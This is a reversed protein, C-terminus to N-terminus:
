EPAVITQVTVTRSRTVSTDTRISGTWTISVTVLREKLSPSTPGTTAVTVTGQVNTLRFKSDELLSKWQLCDGRAMFPMSTPCPTSATTDISNYNDVNQRNFQIREIMDSALTTVRTTENADVNKSFSISQMGSLALLGTGVIVAAIMGEILTFGDHRNLTTKM